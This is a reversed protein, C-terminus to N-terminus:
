RYRAVVERAGFPQRSLAFRNQKEAVADECDALETGHGDARVLPHRM